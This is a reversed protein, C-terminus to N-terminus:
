RRREWPMPMQATKPPTVFTGRVQSLLKLSRTANNFELGVSHVVSNGNTLTVERDTQALDKDPIVHLYSTRLTMEDQDGYAHRRVVVNGNFFAEEGNHSVQGQDARMTVPATEADYHTFEPADLTASNDGPYHVMKKARVAYRPTGELNMRTVLFDEALFDPDKPSNEHQEDPQVTQDLWYTLGALAALLLAPLYGVWREKM